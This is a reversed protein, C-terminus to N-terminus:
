LSSGLSQRLSNAMAQEILLKKQMFAPGMFPQAPMRSTGIELMYGYYAIGQNDVYVEIEGNEIESIEIHEKLNGTKVKVLSQAGKQMVKAGATLAKGKDKEVNREMQQMQRNLEQLGELQMEM